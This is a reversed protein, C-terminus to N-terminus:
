KKKLRFFVLIGVGMSVLAACLWILSFLRHFDPDYIPTATM